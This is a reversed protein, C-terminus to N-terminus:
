EDSDSEENNNSTFQNQIDRMAKQKEKKIRELKEKAQDESINPNAIVIAEWEEIMNLERKKQIVELLEKDTIMPKPKEYFIQVSETKFTTRNLAAEYAKIIEYQDQELCEAYLQQNDRIIDHVDAMSLLRDFGSAFKEIGGEIGGKTKIGEEDLINIADFKLVNMQGDLNPNANIYDADTKPAGPKVSQPLDIAVHQGTHIRQKKQGEPYMYKLVGHGQSSSATKLDSFSVNWDISKKWLASPVPYDTSPDFSIFTGPIRGIPNEMNPNGPIELFSIEIEREKDKNFSRSLVQVHNKGNWLSYKKTQASQDAQDDTIVQEEQDNTGVDETIEASPYSLIFIVVEGTIEDRVLDYEYPALAQSVYMGEDNDDKPNVWTTWLFAYKYHNLHKDFERYSHNMKSKALLDNYIETENDNDLERKPMTKYAQAKKSIAKKSISIDGIRFFQHTEPYILKLEEKVFFRQNGELVQFAKWADKKRDINKSKEIEFIIQKVDNPNTIDLERAKKPM